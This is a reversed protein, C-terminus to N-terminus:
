GRELLFFDYKELMSIISKKKMFQIETRFSLRSFEPDKPSILALILASTKREKSSCDSALGCTLLSFTKINSSIRSNRSYLLQLYEDETSVDPKHNLFQYEKQLSIQIFEIM